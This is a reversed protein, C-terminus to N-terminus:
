RARAVEAMRRTPEDLRLPDASAEPALPDLRFRALGLIMLYELVEDLNTGPRRRCWYSRCRTARASGDLLEIGHFPGRGASTSSCKHRSQYVQITYSCSQNQNVTNKNQTIWGCMVARRLCGLRLTCATCLPAATLNIASRRRANATCSCHDGSLATRLSTWINNWWCKVIDANTSLRCRSRRATTRRSCRSM